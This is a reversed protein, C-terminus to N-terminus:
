DEPKERWDVENTSLNKVSNGNLIEGWYVIIYNAFNINLFFPFQLKMTVLGILWMVEARARNDSSPVYDVFRMKSMLDNLCIQTILVEVDYGCEPREDVGSYRWM